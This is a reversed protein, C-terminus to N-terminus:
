PTHWASFDLSVRYIKTEDEFFDTDSLITASFTASGNMATVIKAALDKVGSYSAAWADVQIRPNELGSYGDLSSVQGGSIRTYTIAPLVVDQPLVLPYIRTSVLTSVPSDAALLAYILTELQAMM